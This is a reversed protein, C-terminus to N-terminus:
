PCAAQFQAELDQAATALGRIATGVAILGAGGGQGLEGVATQLADLQTTFADVASALETSASAKLAEASAKVEAVAATLAETGGTGTLDVQSLATISAELAALDTCVTGAPAGSSPAAPESSTEPATTGEPATTAGPATTASPTGASTCAAALLAISLVLGTVTLGRPLQPRPDSM